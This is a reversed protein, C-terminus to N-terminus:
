GYCFYTMSSYWPTKVPKVKYIGTGQVSESQFIVNNPCYFKRDLVNKAAQISRESPYENWFKSSNVCAYQGKQYAVDWITDPFRTDRVRNMVVAGVLQKHEDDCADNAETNIIRALFILDNTTYTDYTVAYGASANVFITLVSIMVIITYAVGSKSKRFM